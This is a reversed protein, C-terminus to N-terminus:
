ELVSISPEARANECFGVNPLLGRAPFDAKVGEKVTQRLFTDFRRNSTVNQQKRCIAIQKNERVRSQSEM